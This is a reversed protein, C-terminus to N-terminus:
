SRSNKWGFVAVDFSKNNPLPVDWREQLIIGRERFRFEIDRMERIEIHDALPELSTIGTPTVSPTGHDDAHQQLVVSCLGIDGLRSAVCNVLAAPDLYEFILAAHILDFGRGFDTTLLDGCFLELAYGQAGFRQRAVDLFQQNVDVGVVGRTIGPRICALGNGTTCGLIAISRPETADYIEKFIAALAQTQGVDPHAMHREYDEAPISKWIVVSPDMVRGDKWLARM